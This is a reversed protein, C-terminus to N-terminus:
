EALFIKRVIIRCIVRRESFGYRPPMDNFIVGVFIQRCFKYFKGPVVFFLQPM